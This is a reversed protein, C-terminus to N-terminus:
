VDEAELLRLLAEYGEDHERESHEVEDDDIADRRELQPYVESEESEGHAVLLGAMVWRLTTRDKTEDRLERLLEEFLRHDDLILEVVDGSTPRPLQATLDTRMYGVRHDVGTVSM